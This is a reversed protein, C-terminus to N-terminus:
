GAHKLDKREYINLKEDIWAHTNRWAYIRWYEGDKRVQIEQILLRSARQNFLTIAENINSDSTGIFLSM